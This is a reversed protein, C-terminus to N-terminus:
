TQRPVSRAVPDLGTIRRWGLGDWVRRAYWRRGALIWGRSLWQRRCVWLAARLSWRAMKNRAFKRNQDLLWLADEDPLELRILRLLRLPGPMTGFQDLVGVVELAVMTRVCKECRGCNYAGNRNEYCVRLHRRALEMGAIAEVKQERTREAGVHEIRIRRSSWLPDTEPHSGWPDPAELSQTSSILVRGFEESLLHAVAALCAGHAWIWSLGCGRVFERLNSEVEIFEKGAAVVAARLSEGVRCRLATDALEIDFGQVYVLADLRRGEFLLTDFSDVGGTFFAATRSGLPREVRQETRARIRGPQAVACWKGFTGELRALGAAFEADLALPCEVLLGRMLIPLFLAAAVAEGSVRLRRSACRFWVVKEVGDVELRIQVTSGGAPDGASEWVERIILLRGGQESSVEAM